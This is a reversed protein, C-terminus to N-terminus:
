EPDSGKIVTETYEGLEEDTLSGLFRGYAEAAQHYRDRAAYQERRLKLGDAVKEPDM